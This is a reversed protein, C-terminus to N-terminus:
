WASQVSITAYSASHAKCFAYGSFAEMQRWIELAEEVTVERKVADRIFRDRYKSFPEKVRKGSMSRRLEDSENFSWGAIVEATKIVDEQYIMIGYTEKLLERLSKHVANMDEKRHHRKVFHRLMGSDAPGPRIVSSAAVIMEFTDVQLKKLPGRMGPSEIQFVGITHGNRILKATKQDIDPMIYRDFHINYKNQITDAVEAIVTLSRQGLIDIKILGAKKISYM